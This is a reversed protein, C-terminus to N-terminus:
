WSIYHGVRSVTGLNLMTKNNSLEQASLEDKIQQPKSTEMSSHQSIVLHSDLM